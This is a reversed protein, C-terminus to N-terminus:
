EVLGARTLAPSTDAGGGAQYAETCMANLHCAPAGAAITSGRRAPRAAGCRAPKSAAEIGKPCVSVAPPM